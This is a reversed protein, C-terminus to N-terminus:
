VDFSQSPTATMFMCSSVYSALCAPSLWKFDANNQMWEEVCEEPTYIGHLKSYEYNCDQHKTSEPIHDM